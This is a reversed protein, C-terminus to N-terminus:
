LIRTSGCVHWHRDESVKHEQRLDFQIDMVRTITRSVTTIDVGFTVVILQLFCWSAYFRLAIMIQQQPTLPFNRKLWRHFCDGIIEELRDLNQSGFHYHKRLEEYDLDDTQRDTRRFQWLRRANPVFLAAM